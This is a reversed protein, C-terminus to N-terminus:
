DARLAELPAVAAARRAPIYSAIFCAVAVVSAGIAYGIPDFTDVGYLLSAFGRSVALALEAGTAFGIAALRASHRLVLSLLAQPTAGLAM